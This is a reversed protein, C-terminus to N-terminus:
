KDMVSFRVDDVSLNAGNVKFKRFAVTMTYNDVLSMDFFRSINYTLYLFRGPELDLETNRSDRGDFVLKGFASYPVPTGKSNKIEFTLYRFTSSYTYTVKGKSNNTVKATCLIETGPLNQEPVCVEFEIGSVTTRKCVTKVKKAEQKDESGKKERSADLTTPIFFSAMVM